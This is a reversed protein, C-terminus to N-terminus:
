GALNRQGDSKGPLFVPTLQWKRRWPIQRVWPDFEHRGCRRCQCASEMARLWRPLGVNLEVKRENECFTLPHTHCLTDCLQNPYLIVLPYLIWHGGGGLCTVGLDLIVPRLSIWSFCPDILLIFSDFNKSVPIPVCNMCSQRQSEPVTFMLKHIMHRVYSIKHQIYWTLYFLSPCFSGCLLGCQREQREAMQTILMEVLPDWVNKM